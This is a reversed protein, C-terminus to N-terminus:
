LRALAEGKTDGSVGANRITVDLGEARLTAEVLTPWAHRKGVGDGATNSDGLAVIEIPQASAEGITCVALLSMATVMLFRGFRSSDLPKRYIKSRGDGDEHERVGITREALYPLFEQRFPSLHPM